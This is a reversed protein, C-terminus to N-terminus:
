RGESIEESSENGAERDTLYVWPRLKWALALWERGCLRRLEPFEAEYEARFAARYSDKNCQEEWFEWNEEFDSYRWRKGSHLFLWRGLVSRCFGFSV